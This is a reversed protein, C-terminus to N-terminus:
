SYATSTLSLQRSTLNAKRKSSLASHAHSGPGEMKWLRKNSCIFAKFTETHRSKIGTVTVRVLAGSSVCDQSFLKRSTHTQVKQTVHSAHIQLLIFHDKISSHSRIDTEKGKVFIRYEDGDQRHTQM